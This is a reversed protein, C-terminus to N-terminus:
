RQQQLRTLLQQIVYPCSATVKEQHLIIPLNHLATCIAEATCPQVHRCTLNHHNYQKLSHLHIM